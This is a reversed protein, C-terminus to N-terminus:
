TALPTNATNKQAYPKESFGLSKTFLANMFHAQKTTFIGYFNFWKRNLDARIPLANLYGKL